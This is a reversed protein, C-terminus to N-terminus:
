ESKRTADALKVAQPRPRSTTTGSNAVIDKLKIRDYEKWVQGLWHRVYGRLVFSYNATEGNQDKNAIFTVFPVSAVEVQEYARENLKPITIEVADAFKKFYLSHTAQDWEFFTTENIFNKVLFYKCDRTYGSLGEIENLSEISSGLIHFVVFTLQGEKASDLFEINRLTHLTSSLLGARVDILTVNSESVTDFIRMQGPVETVDVIETIKPHFRYLAGKPAETDFARLAIWQERLYDLLTRAVTTKGVGGKDAGVLIVTPKAM